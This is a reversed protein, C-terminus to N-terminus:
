VTFAAHGAYNRWKNIEPIQLYIVGEGPGNQLVRPVADPILIESTSLLNVHTAMNHVKQLNSLGPSLTHLM